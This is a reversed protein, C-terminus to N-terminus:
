ILEQGDEGLPVPIGLVLKYCPSARTESIVRGSSRLTTCVVHSLKEWSFISIQFSKADEWLNWSWIDSVSSLDNKWIRVRVTFSFETLELKPKDEEKKRGKTGREQWDRVYM